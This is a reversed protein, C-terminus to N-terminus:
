ICQRSQCFDHDILKNSELPKSPLELYADEILKNKLLQCAFLLTELQSISDKISKLKQPITRSRPKRKNLTTLHERTILAKPKIKSLYFNWNTYNGDKDIDLELTIAHNSKDVEFKSQNFLNTPLLNIWSSGLCISESRALLWEDLKNGQNIREGVTPSHIWLKAGGHYPETYISLLFPSQDSEWSTLLLSNQSTLDVRNKEDPSKLSVRPPKEEMSINHKAKIIELDGQTGSNLNLTQVIEGLANYQAIPYKNVKVKFIHDSNILNDSIKKDSSIEVKSLIREDLPTALYGTETKDLSALVNENIRELVCLITGEPSKRRIGEKLIRVLVKDGHWANNLHQDRIYIDDDGDERVVFCYGKSSCRVNGIITSELLVRQITDSTDKRLIGLKSLAKLAIDLHNRELKKTLKLAKELKKVELSGESPLLELIRAVSLM